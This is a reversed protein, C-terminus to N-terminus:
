GLIDGVKIQRGLLFARADLRKKGELQVEVLRLTGEGAAVLLDDGQAAVVKGPQAQPAPSPEIRARHVKLVKGHLVTSAGPWPQVGRILNHLVRAPRNWDLRGDDKELARAWVVRTADQPTAQPAGREILGFAEVALEGGLAALRDHLEEVTEEPGIPVARQLLMDGDDLRPTVKLITVGSRDDGNILTWQMPAAGRYRPLLSPHVNIFGLRPLDLLVKPLLQGFAVVLAIEPKIEGLAQLFAPDKVKEPQFLPLGRELAWAKVPPAQLSLGRGQPRDPQCIVAHPVRGARQLADLVPLAFAPTGFFAFSLTM